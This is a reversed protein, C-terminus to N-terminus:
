PLHRSNLTLCRERWHWMAAVLTTRLGRVSNKCSRANEEMAFDCLHPNFRPGKLVDALAQPWVHKSSRRIREAGNPDKPYLLCVGISEILCGHCFLAEGLLFRNVVLSSIYTTPRFARPVSPGWTIWNQPMGEGVDHWMFTFQSHVNLFKNFVWLSMEDIYGFMQKVEKQGVM